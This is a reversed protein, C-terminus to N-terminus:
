LLAIYANEPTDYLVNIKEIRKVEMPYDAAAVITIQNFSLIFLFLLINVIFSKKDIILIRM